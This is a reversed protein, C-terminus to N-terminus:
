EKRVAKLIGQAIQDVLSDLPIGSDSALFELAAFFEKNMEKNM